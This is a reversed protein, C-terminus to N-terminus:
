MSEAALKLAVDQRQGAAFLRELWSQIVMWATTMALYYLAAVSYLELPRFVENIALTTVRLLEEFSIVSLLATTRMMSTFENGFPPLMVRVAQPLLISRLMEFRSFGLSRAADVQGADVSELGARIIEAMYAGAYLGLGLLGAELVSLRLGLQALGFYFLLLQVLPPTGRFMWIYAGGLFRLVVNRARTALAVVFGVATAIFQAACAVALTVLAAKAMRQDFLYTVFTESSWDM